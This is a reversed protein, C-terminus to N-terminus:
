IYGFQYKKNSFIGDPFGLKTTRRRACCSFWTEHLCAKLWRPGININWFYTQWFITFFDVIKVWVVALKQLYKRMVNTKPFFAFNTASFQCLNAFMPL